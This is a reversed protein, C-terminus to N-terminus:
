GVHPRAELIAIAQDANLEFPRKMELWIDLMANYKPISPMHSNFDPFDQDYCLEKFRNLDVIFYRCYARYSSENNGDFGQFKVWSHDKFKDSESKTSSYHLASYMDLINLVNKCEDETLGDSINEFIWGYHLEYGEELAKRHDAYYNAGDPYLKELILFQNVLALREKKDLKM